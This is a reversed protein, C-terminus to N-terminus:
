SVMPQEGILSKIADRTMRAKKPWVNLLKQFSKDRLERLQDVNHVPFLAGMLCYFAHRCVQEDLLNELKDAISIIAEIDGACEAEALAAIQKLAEWRREFVEESAIDIKTAKRYELALQTVSIRQKMYTGVAARVSLWQQNAHIRKGVTIADTRLLPNCSAAKLFLLIDGMGTGELQWNGASALFDRRFLAVSPGEVGMTFPFRDWPDFPAVTQKSLSYSPEIGSFCDASAVVCNVNPNKVYIESLMKLHSPHWLDDQDLFALLPSSSNEIGVNRAHSSGKGINTLLKTGPFRTSVVERSTDTSGDDVVIVEAPLQDQSYVSNLTEEIWNTGNFLPIIVAVDM